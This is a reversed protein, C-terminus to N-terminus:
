FLGRQRIRRFEGARMSDSGTLQRNKKNSGGVRPASVNPIGGLPMEGPQTRDTLVTAPQGSDEQHKESNRVMAAAM